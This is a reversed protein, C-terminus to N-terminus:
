SKRSAISRSWTRSSTPVPSAARIAAADEAAAMVGVVGPGRPALEAAAAVVRVVGRAAALRAVVPAVAGALVVAAM